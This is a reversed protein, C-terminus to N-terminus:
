GSAGSGRVPPYRRCRPAPRRGQGARRRGQGPTGPRCTRTTSDPVEQISQPTAAVTAVPIRGMTSAYRATRSAPMPASASGARRLGRGRCALSRHQLGPGPPELGGDGRQAPLQLGAARVRQDGGIQQGQQLLGAARGLRQGDGATRGQRQRVIRQEGGRAGGAIRASPRLRLPQRVLAHPAERRLADERHRERQDLGIGAARLRCQRRQAIRTGLGGPRLLDRPGLGERAGAQGLLVRGGPFGRYAERPLTPGPLRDGCEAAQQRFPRVVDRHAGVQQRHQFVLAARRLGNRQDGGTGARQRGIGQGRRHARQAVLPLEGAGLRKRSLAHAAERAIGAERGKGRQHQHIGAARLLRQRQQAAGGAPAGIWDLPQEGFAIRLLRQAVAEGREAGIAAGQAEVGAAAGRAIGGGPQQAPQVRGPAGGGQDVRRRWRQLLALRPQRQGRMLRAGHHAPAAPRRRLLRLASELDGIRRQRPEIRQQGGLRRRVERAADPHVPDHRQAVAHAHGLGQRLGVRQRRGAGQGEVHALRAGIRQQVEPTRLLRQLLVAGDKGGIAEVLIGTNAGEVRRHLRLAEALGIRQGIGRQGLLRGEAAEEVIRGRIAIRVPGAGRQGGAHRAEEAILEAVGPRADAWERLPCRRVLVDPETGGRDHPRPAPRM